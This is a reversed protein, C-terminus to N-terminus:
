QALLETEARLSQVPGQGSDQEVDSRTLVAGAAVPRIVRVRHALGIPLIQGAVSRMAPQLKGWVTHGGEGDLMEGVKLDRKAVAVSDGRFLRSSGTPEGRLAASLVSIGLELGILHFPKY